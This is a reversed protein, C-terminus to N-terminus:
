ALFSEGAPSMARRIVVDESRAEFACTRQLHTEIRRRRSRIAELERELREFLPWAADGQRDIVQALVALGRELTEKTVPPKSLFSQARM